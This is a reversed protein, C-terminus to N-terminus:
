SRVPKRRALPNISAAQGEGALVAHGDKRVCQTKAAPDLLFEAHFFGGAIDM